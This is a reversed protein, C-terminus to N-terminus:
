CCSRPQRLRRSGWLFPADRVGGAQPHLTQTCPLIEGQMIVFASIATCTPLGRPRPSPPDSPEELGLCGVKFSGPTSATTTTPPPLLNLDPQTLPQTPHLRTPPASLCQTPPLPNLGGASCQNTADSTVDSLAPPQPGLVPAPLTWSWSKEREQTRGSSLGGQAGLGDRGPLHLPSDSAVDAAPVRGPTGKAKPLLSFFLGSSLSCPCLGEWPSFKPLSICSRCVEQQFRGCRFCSRWRSSLPASAQASPAQQIVRPLDGVGQAETHGDVGLCTIAPRWFSCLSM